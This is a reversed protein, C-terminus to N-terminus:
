KRGLLLNLAFTLNDYKEISYNDWFVCTGIVIFEGGGIRNAAAIIPQNNRNSRSTEEGMVVVYANESLLKVSATCPMLVWRVGEDYRYIKRTVVFFKDNNYNNIEDMIADENMRLGFKTSLTNITDAIRDENLYYGLIITRGGSMLFKRIIEVDGNSFPKEPYNLVLVDYKNIDQLDLIEEVQVNHKKLANKLISFYYHDEITFEQHSIDWAIRVM